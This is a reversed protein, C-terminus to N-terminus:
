KRYVILLTKNIAWLVHFYRPIAQWVFLVRRLSFIYMMKLDGHSFKWMRFTYSVNELTKKREEWHETMRRERKDAISFVSKKRWLPSNKECSRCKVVSSCLAIYTDNPQHLTCMWICELQYLYLSNKNIFLNRTVFIFYSNPVLANNIM